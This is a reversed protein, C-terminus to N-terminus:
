SRDAGLAVRGPGSAAEFSFYMLLKREWDAASPKMKNTYAAARQRPAPLGCCGAAAAAEPVWAYGRPEAMNTPCDEDGM